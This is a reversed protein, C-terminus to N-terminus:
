AARQGRLVHTATVDVALSEDDIRGVLVVAYVDRARELTEWGELVDRLVRAPERERPDGYGGGGGDVGRIWEGAELRCEVVGPLKAESGDRAIKYTAAPPGDHGGRVGRPANVQGDCNIIVTMPDRRPGYVVDVGPGGRRRGAGSGGTAVRMSRYLMPFKSEDIEVSGRYIVGCAAPLGFNLWGDTSPTGPGGNAIMWEQNIYPGNRRWDRGSIVAAGAGMGMAGEANGYGPGLAAFATQVANIIRDGINTTAMSCSHPFEPIGTVCGQRLKIAIRSFSGANHPVTPDICNFVGCMANSTACAVSQNLGFDLNDANHCLDVEIRGVDGDVAIDVRIPLGDPLLPPLPDYVSTSSLHASPLRRIAEATVRESYAFWQEIFEDILEAGYREVLETLRREGIRAAGISALYDGHWQEPVRIRRQCMRIIDEVDRYDRQVRVCPFILAGEEYIDRALAYYTSAISNGCDAQHAKACATFLHKGGVFVPVMYMHDAPHSNGLYPDNHLFADGPALDAHLDCMAQTQLSSGFIHVPAGEAACLLRNDATVISCSFDRVVALVASRATKLLTNTMERVIANVRNALVAMLVADVQRARPAALTAAAATPTILYRGGASVRAESGPYVVVTSTEEEIVAPGAICAGAPLMEGVYVATDLYGDGFWAPRRRAPVATTAAGAKVPELTPAAVRAILRGRWNLCEVANSPDFVAFVREHVRHFENRLAQVDADGHFRRCPVEVELEWVQFRYRAEVFYSTRIDTFGRERLRAAFADLEVDIGDLAADVGGLDFDETNTLRSAGVETVIDSFQMGSASLAGATRPCLVTRCGLEQAIPVINLGGAGGGGIIASEAPDIGQNVTLEKIAQIMNENAVAIIAWAAREVEVGLEAAIRAVAARAAAADLAMRGGLMQTPDFHGLVVAADTVTAHTGGRSYCAPGPEAGASQPGVRLLGGADVWAISGGGAGISHVAVSAMGLNDGTWQPGLWTDRTFEVGGDRVLSVDFTTGGADCVIVNRPLGEAEVYALGATPAMAPGSKVLFIPRKVVDALHMVGGLSTSVLIDNAYGATRLDGELETLYRQMMPKLSADIATSSARRYERVIPNLQHSLTCPVGPLYEEILEGVRLEHRPNAISWLLCVAVAEFGRTALARLLERVAAEDLPQEIGGEANVREPIEFTHRRAIYPDPYAMQLNHTDSKGGEKLLLIDPFGATTLLATRAIKREVIANTARTTGYLFVATDALLGATDTDLAAAAIALGAEVSAFARNRDTLAKGITFRGRADTVVVDTFTGGTDVSIRFAM